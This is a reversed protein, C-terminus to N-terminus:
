SVVNNKQILRHKDEYMTILAGIISPFVWIVIFWFLSLGLVQEAAVGYLSFFSILSAERTGLGYITIPLSGIVNAVAFLLMFPVFAVDINFLHAIQFVIFFRLVWGSVSLVFPVGLDSLAPMDEYFLDISSSVKSAFPNFFSYSLLKKFLADMVQKRRVMFFGIAAFICFGIMVVFLVPFYRGLLFAGAIALVSLSLFDLMNFMVVNAM